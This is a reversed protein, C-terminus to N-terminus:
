QWITPEHSMFFWFYLYIINVQMIYWMSWVLNALLMLLPGKVLEGSKSYFKATSTQTQTQTSSHIFQVHPGKVFAFVLAGSVSIVCGLVKAMGHSQRISLSEVRFAKFTIIQNCILVFYHKYIACFVKIYSGYRFDSCPNHQHHSSCLNSLHVKYCLLLPKSRTYDQFIVVFCNFM